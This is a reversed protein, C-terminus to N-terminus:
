WVCGIIEFNELFVSYVNFVCCYINNKILSNIDIYVFIVDFKYVIDIKLLLCNVNM